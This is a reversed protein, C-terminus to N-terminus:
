RRELAEWLETELNDIEAPFQRKFFREAGPVRGTVEFQTDVATGTGTQEIRHHGTVDFVPSRGEFSVFTPPRRDVTRTEVTLLKGVGPLPLDLHWVTTEGEIKFRDVLDIARARNAPDELFAWVAEPPAEVSFRREVRVTM